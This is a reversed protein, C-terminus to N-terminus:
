IERVFNMLVALSRWGHRQSAVKGQMVFIFAVFCENEYRSIRRSRYSASRNTDARKHMSLVQAPELTGATVVYSGITFGTQVSAQVDMKFSAVAVASWVISISLSLAIPFLVVLSAVHPDWGRVINLANTQQHRLTLVKETSLRDRIATGTIDSTYKFYYIQRSYSGHRGLKLPVGISDGVAHDQQLQHDVTTDAFSRRYRYLNDYYWVQVIDIRQSTKPGLLEFVGRGTRNLDYFMRLHELLAKDEADKSCPVVLRRSNDVFLIAEREFGQQISWAATYDDIFETGDKACLFYM